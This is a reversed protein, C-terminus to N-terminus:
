NTLQHDLMQLLIWTFDSYLIATANVDDWLISHLLASLYLLTPDCYTVNELAPTLSALRSFFYWM